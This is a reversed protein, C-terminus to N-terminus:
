NGKSSWNQIDLHKIKIIWNEVIWTFLCVIDREREGQTDKSKVM